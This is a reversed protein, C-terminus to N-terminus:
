WSLQLLCHDGDDIIKCSVEGGDAIFDGLSLWQEDTLQKRIESVLMERAEEINM